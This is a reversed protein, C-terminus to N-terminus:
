GPIMPLVIAGDENVVPKNNGETPETPDPEVPTTPATTEVPAAPETPETPETPEAPDTPDTVESTTPDSTGGPTSPQTVDTSAFSDDVDIPTEWSGADGSGSPETADNGDPETGDPATTVPQTGNDVPDTTANEKCSCLLLLMIVMCIILIKRM